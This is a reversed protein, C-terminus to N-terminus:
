KGVKAIGGALRNGYGRVFLESGHGHYPVFVSEYLARGSHSESANAKGEALAAASATTLNDTVAMLLLLTM